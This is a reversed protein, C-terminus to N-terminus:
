GGINPSKPEPQGPSAIIQRLAARISTMAQRLPPAAAPFRQAVEMIEMEFERLKQVTQKLADNSSAADNGAGAGTSPSPPASQDPQTGSGALTSPSAPPQSPSQLTPSM